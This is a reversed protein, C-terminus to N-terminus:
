RYMYVYMSEAWRTYFCSNCELTRGPPNRTYIDLLVSERGFYLRTSEYRSKCLRAQIYVDVHIISYLSHSLSRIDDANKDRTKERSKFIVHLTSLLSLSLSKTIKGLRQQQLLLLLPSAKHSLNNKIALARTKSSVRASIKNASGHYRQERVAHIVRFLIKMKERACQAKHTHTHARARIETLRKILWFLSFDNIM